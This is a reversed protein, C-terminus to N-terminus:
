SNRKLKLEKRLELNINQKTLGVKKFAIWLEKDSKLFQILGEKGYIRETRECILAATLYPISTENEFFLREYPDLHLIFDHKPNETIFNSLKQRHWEYDFKGSGVIYTAIGEDIFKNLKPYLKTTYIHVIEHTYIESNNGSFIINGHEALGGSTDIYMMPNYDFGKIEFIEKPNICSFYTIVIPRTQFFDCLREIEKQQLNVEDNNIKMLPSIMYNVSGVSKKLWNRTSFELYTSFFIKEKDTNAVLNYISKILNEGTQANHGIFAIKLIKQNDNETSIIEMLTPKYFDSGLRGSEIKYLDLYPYIYKDFDSGQWYNNEVLSNNKTILFQRLTSILKKNLPIEQNIIPSISLSSSDTKDIQSSCISSTFILFASILKRM